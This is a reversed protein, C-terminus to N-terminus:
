DGLFYSYIPNTLNRLSYSGNAHMEGKRCNETMGFKSKLDTLRKQEVYGLIDEMQLQICMECLFGMLRREHFYETKIYKKWKFFENYASINSDLYTLYEGLEKPSKFDLANIYGSKPAYFSYNGLGLVVPVIDFNFWEFFKETIYGNCASNEFSLYFKFSRAIDSKCSSSNACKEGCGGFVKVAITKNLEKIYNLRDTIEFQCNSILAAVPSTKNVTRDLNEDFSEDLEWILGSNTWYISSYDSEISHTASYNFTSDDFKDCLHCHVPPEYIM